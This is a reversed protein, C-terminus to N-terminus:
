RAGGRDSTQRAIVRGLYRVIVGEFKEPHTKSEALTFSIGDGVQLCREKAVNKQHIFVSCQDALNECFYWGKNSVYSVVGITEM